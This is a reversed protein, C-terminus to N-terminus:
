PHASHNSTSALNAMRAISEIHVDHEYRHEAEEEVKEGILLGAKTSLMVGVGSGVFSLLWNDQFSLGSIFMEGIGFTEIFFGIMVVETAIGLAKAFAKHKEGNNYMENVHEVKPRLEVIKVGVGAVSAELAESFFDLIVFTEPPTEEGEEGEKGEGHKEHGNVTADQAVSVNGHLLIENGMPINLGSFGFALVLLLVIMGIVGITLYQNQQPIISIIKTVLM